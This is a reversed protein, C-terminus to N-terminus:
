AERHAWFVALMAEVSHKVGWLAYCLEIADIGRREFWRLENKSGVREVQGHCDEGGNSFGFMCLPLGFKDPSRMAVGRLKTSKLHHVTNPAPSGCIVCPLKRLKELYSTDNGDRRAKQKRALRESRSPKFNTTVSM